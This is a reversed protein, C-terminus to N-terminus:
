KSTINTENCIYYIYDLLEKERLVIKPDDYNNNMIILRKSYKYLKIPLMFSSSGIFMMILLLNRLM